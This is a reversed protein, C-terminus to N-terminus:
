TDGAKVDIGTDTWDRIDFERAGAIAAPKAEPKKEMSPFFQGFM